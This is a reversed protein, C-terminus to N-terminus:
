LLHRATPPPHLPLLTDHQLQLDITTFQPKFRLGL